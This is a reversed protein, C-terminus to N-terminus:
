AYRASIYQVDPLSKVIAIINSSDEIYEKTELNSIIIDSTYQSHWAAISGEILGVLIGSLVVLNLFTLVMVFVILGTTWINARKIHRLALFFGIRLNLLYQRLM